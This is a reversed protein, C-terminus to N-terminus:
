FSLKSYPAERHRSINGTQLYKWDPSTEVNKICSVDSGKYPM